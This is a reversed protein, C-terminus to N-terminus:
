DWDILGDKGTGLRAVRTPQGNNFRKLGYPPDTLLLDFRELWPLVKRCDANYITIGDQDYYPKFPLRVIAEVPTAAMAKEDNGSVM